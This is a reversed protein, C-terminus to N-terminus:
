SIFESLVFVNYEAVELCYFTSESVLNRADDLKQSLENLSAKEGNQNIWTQYSTMDCSFATDEVIISQLSDLVQRRFESEQRFIILCLPNFAHFGCFVVIWESVKEEIYDKQKEIEPLSSKAGENDAWSCIRELEDTSTKDELVVKSNKLAIAHRKLTGLETSRKARM